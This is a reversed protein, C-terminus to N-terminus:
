RLLGILRAIREGCRQVVSVGAAMAEEVTQPREVVPVVIVGLDALPAIGDPTVGGGVAVCPVGVESARRAVGLATKGFATQEDPFLAGSRFPNIRFSAAAFLPAFLKWEWDLELRRPGGFATVRDYATSSEARIQERLEPSLRILDGLLSM